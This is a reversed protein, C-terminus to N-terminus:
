KKRSNKQRTQLDFLLFFVFFALLFPKSLGKGPECLDRSNRLIHKLIRILIHINDFPSNM